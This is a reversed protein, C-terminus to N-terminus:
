SQSQRVQRKMMIEKRNTGALRLMEDFGNQNKSFDVVGNTYDFGFEKACARISKFAEDDAKTWADVKEQIIKKRKKSQSHTSQTKM